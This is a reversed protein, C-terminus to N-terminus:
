KTMQWNSRVIIDLSEEVGEMGISPPSFRVAEALSRPAVSRCVGMFFGLMPTPSNFIHTFFIHRCM